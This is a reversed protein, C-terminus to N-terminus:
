SVHSLDEDTLTNNLIKEMLHIENEKLIGVSLFILKNLEINDLIIHADASLNFSEEANLDKLLKFTLEVNSNLALERIGELELKSFTNKSATRSKAENLVYDFTTSLIEINNVLAKAKSAINDNALVESLTIPVKKDQSEQFTIYRATASVGVMGTLLEPLLDKDVNLKELDSIYEWVRYDPTMYDVSFPSKKGHIFTRNEEQSLFNVVNGHFNGETGIYSLYEEDTPMYSIHCFRSRFAEDTFDITGSYEDTPPNALAIIATDEPFAYEGIRRDREVMQFIANLIQRNQVRNIEDLVILVKEDKRPFYAPPRFTTREEGNVTVFNPLGTIDGADACLALRLNYVRDFGLQKGMQYSVQTKGTGKHGIILPVIRAKILFPLARKLNKLDM